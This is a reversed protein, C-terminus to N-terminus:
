VKNYDDLLGAITHQGGQAPRAHEQNGNLRDQFVIANAMARFQTNSVMMGWLLCELYRKDHMAVGKSTVVDVTIVTSKERPRRKETLAKQLM